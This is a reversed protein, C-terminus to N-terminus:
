DSFRQDNRIRSPTWSAASATTMDPMPGGENMARLAAVYIPPIVAPFTPAELGAAQAMETAFSNCNYVWLNWYKAKKKEQEVFAVMNHYHEPSLEARYSMLVPLHEDSWVKSLQGPVPLPASGVALGLAGGQPHFGVFNEELPQGNADLPGYIMYTHFVPGARARFEVFYSQPQTAAEAGASVSDQVGTASAEATNATLARYTLEDVGAGNHLATQTSTGAATVCGGLVAAVLLGATVLALSLTNRVGKGRM